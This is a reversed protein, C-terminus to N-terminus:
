LKRKEEELDKTTYYQPRQPTNPIEILPTSKFPEVPSCPYTVRPRTSRGMVKNELEIRKQVEKNYAEMLKEYKRQLEFMEKQEKEITALIFHSTGVNMHPAEVHTTEIVIKLIINGM